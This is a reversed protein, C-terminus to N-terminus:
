MNTPKEYASGDELKRLSKGVKSVNGPKLTRTTKEYAATKNIIERSERCKGAKRRQKRSM